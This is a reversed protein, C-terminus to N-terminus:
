SSTVMHTTSCIPLAGLCVSAPQFRNNPSKKILCVTSTLPYVMLIYWLCLIKVKNVQQLRIASKKTFPDSWLLDIQVRIFSIQTSNIKSQLHCQNWNYISNDAVCFMYLYSRIIICELRLHFVKYPLPVVSMTEWLLNFLTAVAYLIDYSRVAVM